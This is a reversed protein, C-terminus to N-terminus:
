TLELRLKAVPSGGPYMELLVIRVHYCLPEHRELRQESEKNM